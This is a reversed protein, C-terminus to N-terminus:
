LAGELHLLWKKSAVGGGGSYGTMSGDSGVVRHCPVIIPVPNSGLAQGVARSARPKGITQAMQGYTWVKGAPISAAAHLVNQQFPTMGSLDVPVDFRQRRGAFYEALQAIAADLAVPKYETRALADLHLVFDDESVGFDLSCVGAANRAVYITGLPSDTAAWQILPATRSFWAQIRHHSTEIDSVSPQIPLTNKEAM